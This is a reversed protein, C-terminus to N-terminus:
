MTRFSLTVGVLGGGAVGLQLELGSSESRSPRKGSLAAGILGLVLGVAQLGADAILLARWGPKDKVLDEYQAMWPGAIPVLLWLTVPEVKNSGFLAQLPYVVILYILGIGASIVYSNAGLAIGVTQLPHTYDEEGLMEPMGGITKPRPRAPETPEASSDGPSESPGSGDLTEPAPATEPASQASAVSSYIGCLALAVVRSSCSRVPM